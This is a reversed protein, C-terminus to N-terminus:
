GNEAYNNMIGIAKEIQKVLNNMVERKKLNYARRLVESGEIAAEIESVNPTHGNYRFLTNKGYSSNQVHVNGQKKGRLYEVDIRTGTQDTRMTTQSEM